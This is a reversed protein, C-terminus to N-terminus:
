ELDVDAHAGEIDAVVLAVGCDAYDDERKDNGFPIQTQLRWVMLFIAM